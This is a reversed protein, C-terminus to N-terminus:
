DVFKVTVGHHAFVASIKIEREVEGIMESDNTQILTLCAITQKVEGDNEGYLWSPWLNATIKTNNDGDFVSQPEPEDILDGEKFGCAIGYFGLCCMKKDDSRILRSLGGGQGRYWESREITLETVPAVTNPTDM